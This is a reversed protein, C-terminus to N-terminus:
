GYRRAIFDIVFCALLLALLIAGASEEAIIQFSSRSDLHRLDDPLKM